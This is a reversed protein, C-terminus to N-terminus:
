DGDLNEGALAPFVARNPLFNPPMRRAQHAKLRRSALILAVALQNQFVDTISQYTIWAVSQYVIITSRNSM